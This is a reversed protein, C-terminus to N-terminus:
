RRKMVKGLIYGLGITAALAQLPHTRIFDRAEAVWDELPRGTYAKVRDNAERALEQARDSLHAVQDQMYSGAREAVDQAALVAKRTQAETAGALNETSDQAM